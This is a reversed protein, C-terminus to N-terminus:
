SRLPFSVIFRAGRAPREHTLVGGQVEALHKALTLGIGEHGEKTTAFLEFLRPELAPSVGPGTDEVILSVAQKDARTLVRVTGEEPIAEVANALLRHLIQRVAEADLPVAPTADLKTELKIRKPLVRGHVSLTRRVVDDLKTPRPTPGTSLLRRFSELLEAIDALSGVTEEFEEAEESTPKRRTTAAKQQSAYWDRIGDVGDRIAEVATGSLVGVLAIRERLAVADNLRSVEGELRHKALVNRVTQILRPGRLSDKVLYDAAGLKM